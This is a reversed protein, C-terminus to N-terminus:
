IKSSAIKMGHDTCYSESIENRQEGHHVISKLQDIRLSPIIISKWVVAFLKEIM